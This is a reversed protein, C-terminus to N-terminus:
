TYTTYLEFSHADLTILVMTKTRDGKSLTTRTLKILDNLQNIQIESYKKMADKEGAKMKAFVEEMERVYNMGGVLINIQAPDLPVLNGDSDEQKSMLWKTREQTPYRLRSRNLNEQLTKQMGELVDQLYFEVKGELPVPPEFTVTEQGVGSIWKVAKAVGPGSEDLVLTETALFVKTVHHLIKNPTSGNSLIDLLDAESVFYFRPFQRRKGDLFDSLSKKCMGLEDSCEDLNKMLDPTRCCAPLIFGKEELGKLIKRVVVDIKAFRKAAEPLEAKVEESKIFIPEM